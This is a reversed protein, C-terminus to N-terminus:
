AGEVSAASRWVEEADEREESAHFRCNYEIAGDVLHPICSVAVSPMGPNAM